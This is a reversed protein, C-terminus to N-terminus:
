LAQVYSAAANRHIRLALEIGKPMRFGLVLHEEDAEPRVTWWEVPFIPPQRKANEDVPPAADLRSGVQDLWGAMLGIQTAPLSLITERGEDDALIVHVQDGTDSLRASVVRDAYITRKM